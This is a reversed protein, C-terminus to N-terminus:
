FYVLRDSDKILAYLDKQTSKKIQQDEDVGHIGM